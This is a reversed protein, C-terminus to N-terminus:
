SLNPVVKSQTEHQRQSYTMFALIEFTKLNVDPAQKTDRILLFILVFSLKSTKRHHRSIEDFCIKCSFLLVMEVSRLHEFTLLRFM